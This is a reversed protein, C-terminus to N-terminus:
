SVPFPLPFGEIELFGHGILNGLVDAFATEKMEQSIVDQGRLDAYIERGSRNGDCWGLLVGVWPDLKAHNQFPYASEVDFQSPVLEGQSAIHTVILKMGAAVRPQSCLLLTRFEPDASATMWNRFWEV